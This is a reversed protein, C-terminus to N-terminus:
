TGYITTQQEVGLLALLEQFSAINKQIKIRKIRNTAGAVIEVAEQPLGLDKSLLKILEKNALGKEPQSKLYCRLEGAKGLKWGNKGSGPVVKVDFIYAM